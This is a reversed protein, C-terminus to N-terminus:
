EEKHRLIKTRIFSGINKAFEKQNFYRRLAYSRVISIATFWLGIYINTKLEINIGFFPFLALQSALAIFYGIAINTATEIGSDLRSQGESM